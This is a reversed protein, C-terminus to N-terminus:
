KKLVKKTTKFHLKAIGELVEPGYKKVLEKAAEETHTAGKPLKYGVMLSLQRLTKLFEARALISAAAVAMDSEARIKQVLKIKKGNEMMANKMYKEDGFKDIIIEEPTEKIKELLNEIARSHAWALIKNLNKFKKQLSNYKEPSIKVIEYKCIKKIETAIKLIVSDLMMKSDKVKMEKLKEETKDDVFVAAVVLYGFYDGKGSEDTGIRSKAM